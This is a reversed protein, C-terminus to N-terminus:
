LGAALSNRGGPPNQGKCWASPTESQLLQLSLARSLIPFRFHVPAEERRGQKKAAGMVMPLRSSKTIAARAHFDKKVAVERERQRMASHLGLNFLGDSRELGDAHFNFGETPPIVPLRAVDDMIQAPHGGHLNFQGM